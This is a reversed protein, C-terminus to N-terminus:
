WQKKLIFIINTSLINRFFPFVKIIPWFFSAWWYSKIIEFWTDLVLNKASKFTYLHLHTKDMIWTETYDFKWFLLNLRIQWNAINPLSIIIQWDDKLYKKFFELVKEPFLVHELVDAFIIVNFKEIGFDLDVLDNLNYQRADKYFKKAEKIAENDYELWYFQNTKDANLWIYWKNCGIDLVLNNEWINNLIISHTWYKAWGFNYKDM